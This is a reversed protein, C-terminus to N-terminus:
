AYDGVGEGCTCRDYLHRLLSPDVRENATASRPRDHCVETPVDGAAIACQITVCPKNEDIM